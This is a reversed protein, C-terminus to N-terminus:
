RSSVVKEYFAEVLAMCGGYDARRAIIRANEIRAAVRLDPHDLAAVIAEALAAPSTADVLLGNVGPQIWERMSEINGVVPFCGCAMAELLSNPTGDHLSPSVFIQSRRLLGWLQAQQGLRPWLRVNKEIGLSKVLTESEADGALSPCIFLAQPSKELVLPIAQLFVDQRLSGPRQGRPNVVIPVDPLVEPLPGALDDSQIRDTHIGGAGPVV